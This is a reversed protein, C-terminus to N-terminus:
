RRAPAECIEHLARAAACPDDAKVIGSGVVLIDAGSERAAVASNVDIGGAVAIQARSLQSRLMRVNEFAHKGSRQADTATHVCVIGCGLKELEQARTAPSPVSMLDAMIRGEFKAAARVAGAITEDHAVGLVTVISAGAEFGLQAEGEGADMIKLDALVEKAPYSQKIKHVAEVGYRIVCPTGVEIIDAFSHVKELLRLAEELDVFDLALQLTVSMASL